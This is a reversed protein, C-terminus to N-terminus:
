LMAYWTVTGRLAGGGPNRVAYWYRGGDELAATTVYATSTGAPMSRSIVWPPAGSFQQRVLGATYPVSMGSGNIEMAKRPFTYGFADGGGRNRSDWTFGVNLGPSFTYTHVRISAGMRSEPALPTEFGAGHEDPNVNLDAAGVTIALSLAMVLCLLVSLMKKM